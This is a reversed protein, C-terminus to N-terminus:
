LIIRGYILELKDLYKKTLDRIVIDNEFKNRTNYLGNSETGTIQKPHQSIDYSNCCVVPIKRLLQMFKLWIDDQYLCLNQIIDDRFLETEDMCQPPYLVGGVGTAFLDLSPKNSNKYEFEWENYTLVKNNEKKIKHVRNAIVCKPNHTHYNYLRTIMKNDYIVDDDITIILENEKQKQIAYFYKSHSKLNKNTQIIDLNKFSMLSSPLDNLHDDKDLYLEIKDPKIDQNQISNLCIPLYNFREKYSTLSVIIKEM